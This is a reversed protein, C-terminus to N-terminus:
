NQQFKNSKTLFALVYLTVNWKIDDNTRSTVTRASEMAGFSALYRRQSFQFGAYALISFALITNTSLTISRLCLYYFANNALRTAFNQYIFRSFTSRTSYNSTHQYIFAQLSQICVSYGIGRHYNYGFGWQKRCFDSLCQPTTKEDDGPAPSATENHRCISHSSGMILPLFLYLRCLSENNQCNNPAASLYIKLGIKHKISRESIYQKQKNRKCFAYLGMCIDLLFIQWQLYMYRRVKIILTILNIIMIYM